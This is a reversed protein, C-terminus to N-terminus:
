FYYIETVLTDLANSNIIFAAQAPLFAWKISTTLLTIGTDGGVGKLKYISASAQPFVILIFTVGTPPTISNDGSALTILTKQFKSTASVISPTTVEGSGSLSSFLAQLTITHEAM